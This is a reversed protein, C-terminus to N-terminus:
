EYRREILATKLATRELTGAAVVTVEPRVAMRQHMRHAIERGLREGDAEGVGLGREVTLLLPPEVRPGPATLVVRLEGSALPALEQVLNRIAAPYVKVGKVILLDDTRGIVRVRPGPRGCPCAATLVEYVDGVSARLQPQAEWRLSTKVREGIAGDVAPVPAKTEPDVLQTVVATDEGLVHMGAYEPADCSACMVGHAGGLMDHVRAGFAAQLHARVEPLGAGPEGACAVIEIGLEAAAIGLRRPAEEALYTAYSPTCLLVRPRVLLAMRLLRESGAEAGVPVIRAGMREVARALPYGALFMSLGFGHLVTDGPRVGVLRLARAWLEDTTAVDAETFAYFTPTGTTGSTSAVGVVREPPACLHEGFPHGAEARSREQLEREADKDLLIPLRELDAVGGVDGPEAGAARLRARYFRSREACYAVTERVRRDRLEAIAAPDAPPGGVSPEELAATV